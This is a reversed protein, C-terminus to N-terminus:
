KLVVVRFSETQGQIDSQIFYIGAAIKGGSEDRVNWSAEFQSPVLPNPSATLTRVLRGKLDFVRVKPAIGPHALGDRASFRVHISGASPAGLLYPSPGARMSVRTAVPGPAVRAGISVDDVYWGEYARVLGGFQDTPENAGDSAFRFRIRSPGAYGSLDVVVRRWVNPSGSFASSGRLPNDSRNEIYFPYGGDPNVPRYIGDTGAIEVRGGDWASTGGNTEADVFSWFVLQSGAPLDFLPSTLGADM